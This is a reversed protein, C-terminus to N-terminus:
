RAGVESEADFLYSAVFHTRNANDVMLVYPQGGIRTISTVWKDGVMQSPQFALVADIASALAEADDYSAQLGVSRVQWGSADFIGETNLGAGPLPTLVVYREPIDPMVPGPHFVLTPYEAAVSDRIFDRIASYRM